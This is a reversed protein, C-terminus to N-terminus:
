AAGKDQVVIRKLGLRKLLRPSFPRKGHLTNCLMSHDFGLATAALRFSGYHKVYARLTAIPDIEKM